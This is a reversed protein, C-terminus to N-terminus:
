VYNNTDPTCSNHENACVLRFFLGVPLVFWDSTCVLRFFLGVPLVFWGSTCVLRFCLYAKSFQGM